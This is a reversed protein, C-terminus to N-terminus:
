DAFYGIFKAKFVWSVKCSEKLLLNPKRRIFVSYKILNITLQSSKLLKFIQEAGDILDQIWCERIGGVIFFCTELGEYCKM